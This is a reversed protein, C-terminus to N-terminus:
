LNVVFEYVHVCTFLKNEQQPYPTQPYSRVLISQANAILHQPGEPGGPGYSEVALPICRWGLKVCQSRKRNQTRSATMASVGQYMHMELMNLSVM